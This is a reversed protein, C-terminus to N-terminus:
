TQMLWPRCGYSFYNLFFGFLITSNFLFGVLCLPTSYSFGVPSIMSTVPVIPSFTRKSFHIELWVDVRRQLFPMHKILDFICMIISSKIWWYFKLCVFRFRNGTVLQSTQSQGAHKKRSAKRTTPPWYTWFAHFHKITLSVSCSPCIIIIFVSVNLNLQIHFTLITCCHPFSIKFLNNSHFDCPIRTMLASM